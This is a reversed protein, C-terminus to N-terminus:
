FLIGTTTITHTNEGIRKKEKIAM